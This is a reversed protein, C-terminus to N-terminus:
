QEASYPATYHSSEFVQFEAGSRWADSPLGAKLALHTLTEARDWGQETAVEPLFVASRGSKSLIVGQRGVEFAQYGAIPRPPTLVSVEVSLGALEDRTVPTFRPDRRAANDGNELVALYLPERPLIYGICGRLEGGRKLTVFAGGPEKLRATLSDVLRRLRSETAPSKGLVAQDIGLLALRHLLELEAATPAGAPPDDTPVVAFATGQAPGASAALPQDATIAFAAYSVSNRYDGTLAGSTQYDLPEVRAEPPLMGLLIAIPRIGCVTIGTRRELALLGAQDRAQIRASAQGDLERLRAPTQDDLPFPQYGFRPGYHTFDSSVLVLTRADALPRLLEAATQYGQEDLRGVLVPVLSWGPTLARQLLPLEIEISHEQREAEAVSGVLPSRRLQEIAARDLPVEGLPTAFADVDAISLGAFPSYHSPALIIVRTFRQGRLRAIAKAATPGSYAYGAHPVIVARPPPAGPVDAPSGAQDLLQDVLLALQDRNGPYWTGALVSPRVRDAAAAHGGGAFMLALAILPLQTM